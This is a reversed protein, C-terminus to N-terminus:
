DHQFWDPREGAEYREKLWRNAQSEPYGLRTDSEAVKKIWYLGQGRDERIGIGNLYRRGIEQMAVTDGLKAAKLIYRSGEAIDFESIRTGYVYCAEHYNALAAPRIISLCKLRWEKNDKKTISLLGLQYAALIHGNLAANVLWKKAKEKEEPDSSSEWMQYCLYQADLCGDEAAEEILSRGMEPSGDKRDDTAGKLMALGYYCKASASSKSYIRLSMMADDDWPNELSKKIAQDLKADGTASILSETEEEPKDAPSHRLAIVSLIILSVAILINFFIVPASCGIALILNKRNM